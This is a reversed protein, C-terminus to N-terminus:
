RYGVLSRGIPRRRPRLFAAYIVIACALMAGWALSV